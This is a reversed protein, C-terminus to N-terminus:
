SNNLLSCKRVWMTTEGIQGEVKCEQGGIFYLASFLCLALTLLLVTIYLVITSTNNSPFLGEVTNELEATSFININEKAM